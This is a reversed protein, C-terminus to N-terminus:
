KKGRKQIRAVFLGLLINDVKYIGSLNILFNVEFHELRLLAM